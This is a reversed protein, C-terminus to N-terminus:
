YRARPRPGGPMTKPFFVAALGSVDPTGAGFRKDCARCLWEPDEGTVVCGGIGVDGREAAEFMDCTPFGYLIPVVRDSGCRECKPRAVM